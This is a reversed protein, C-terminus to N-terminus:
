KNLIAKRLYKVAMGKLVGDPFHRDHVEMNSIKNERM